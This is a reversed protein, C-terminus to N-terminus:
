GRITKECDVLKLSRYAAALEPFGHAEAWTRLAAGRDNIEARILNGRVCSAVQADEIKRQRVDTVFWMLLAGVCFAATLLGLHLM